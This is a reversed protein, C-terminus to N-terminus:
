RCPNRPGALATTLLTGDLHSAADAPCFRRLDTAVGPGWDQTYEADLVLKRARTYPATVVGCTQYYECEEVLLFDTAPELARSFGSDGDGNKQGWALGLSHAYAALARDYRVSDAETVRFGTADAYSDDIDPEVADFGKAACQQRIMAKVIAVTSAANVNLYREPYGPVTAGLDHARLFQQYYSVQVHETGAPYYDGAAGVEIYCIARDGLAHLARVTSAPNTIGDIDFLTTAGSRAGLSNVAGSGTDSALRINLPHDLEWQFEPGENPGAPRPHWWPRPVASTTAVAWAAPRAATAGAPTAPRGCACALLLGAAAAALWGRMVPAAGAV